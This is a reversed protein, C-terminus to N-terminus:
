FFATDFDLCIIQADIVKYTLVLGYHFRLEKDDTVKKETGTLKDSM